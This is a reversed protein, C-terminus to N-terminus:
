EKGLTAAREAAMASPQKSQQTAPRSSATAQIRWEQIDIYPLDGQIVRAIIQTAGAQVGASPKGSQLMSALVRQEGQATEELFGRLWTLYNGKYAAQGLCNWCLDRGWDLDALHVIYASSMNRIQLDSSCAGKWLARSVKDRNRNIAEQPYSVLARFEPSGNTFLLLNSAKEIRFCMYRILDDQQSQSMGQTYLWTPSGCDRMIRYATGWAADNTTNSWPQTLTQLLEEGLEQKWLVEDFGRGSEPFGEGAFDRYTRSALERRAKQSAVRMGVFFGIAVCALMIIAINIKIRM